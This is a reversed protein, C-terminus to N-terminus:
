VEKRARARARVSMELSVMEDFLDRLQCLTMNMLVSEALDEKSNGETLYEILDAQHAQLFGNAMTHPNKATITVIRKINTNTNTNTM